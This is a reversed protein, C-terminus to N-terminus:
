SVESEVEKVKTCNLTIYKEGDIMTYEDGMEIHVDCWCVHYEWHQGIKDIPKLRAMPITGDDTNSWEMKITYLSVSVLVKLLSLKNEEICILQSRIEPGFNAEGQHSANIIVEVVSWNDCSQCDEVHSFLTVKGTDKCELCKM